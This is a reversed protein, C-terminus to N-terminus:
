RIGEVLAWGVEMEGGRVFRLADTVNTAERIRNNNWKDRLTIHLIKREMARQTTQIKRKTEKTLSWTQCGYTITPLICQDMVKKKLSIPIDRDELIEKHMGFCRWAAKVRVMVEEKTTNEMKLTQGLYKYEEVKEIDDNEIRITHLESFNTMYKTKGKHIKLGVKKSNINLKNFQIELKETSNAFLAVDDAFRLDTLREGDIRLGNSDLEPQKFVEEITATFLKPSIPDGQRVGRKINIVSSVENDLHIRATANTYIDQLINIYTSPINMNILANFMAIHEVSDFAKEYDIFGICLPLNYENSKEIIQNTVHLHDTTSFGKRFGAQERPQNEDLIKEM